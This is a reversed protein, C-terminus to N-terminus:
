SIGRPSVPGSLCGAWLWALWPPAPQWGVDAVLLQQPRPQVTHAHSRTCANLDGKEGGRQRRKNVEMFCLFNLGNMKSNTDGEGRGPERGQGRCGRRVAQGADKVRLLRIHICKGKPGHFAGSQVPAKILRSHSPLPEQAGVCPKGMYCKRHQGQEGMRDASRPLPFSEPHCHGETAAPRVEEADRSKSQTLLWLPPMRRLLLLLLFITSKEHPLM